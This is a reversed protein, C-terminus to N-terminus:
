TAEKDFLKDQEPKQEPEDFPLVQQRLREIAIDCYEQSIEIGIARRGLQKAAVLTTGSGMFPDLITNNLPSLEAAWKIINLPKQTPHFRDENNERLYGHWLHKVLRAAIGYNTWALECDAYRNTGNMKDWVLWSPSPSVRYYNGGWLCCFAGMDIIIDILTQDIKIDWEGYYYDRQKIHKNKGTDGRKKDAGIGYPPDTLVLDVKPLEPLIDRCDGHYIVIGAHDYYPKIM